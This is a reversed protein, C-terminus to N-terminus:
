SEVEQSPCRRATSTATLAPASSPWWMPWTRHRASGGRPRAPVRRSSPGRCPERGTPCRSARASWTPSCATDRRGSPWSTPPVELAGKVAPYTVGGPMPQAVIDTSVFVLRGWGRDRMGPLAAEVMAITGAVNTGLAAAMPARDDDQGPWQVANAVLVDVGSLDGVPGDLPAMFPRAAGGGAEIKAALDEAGTPQSHYGVLVTAGEEALRVAIAGGIEGTAGTVLATRDALKLDM